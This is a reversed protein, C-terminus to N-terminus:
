RWRLVCGGSPSFLPLLLECAEMRVNLERVTEEAQWYDHCRPTVATNTPSGVRTNFGTQCPSRDCHSVRDAAAGKFDPAEHVPVKLPVSISIDPISITPYTVLASTATLIPTPIGGSPGDCQSMSSQSAMETTRTGMYVPNPPTNAPTNLPTAPYSVPLRSRPRIPRLNNVATRHNNNVPTTFTVPTTVLGPRPTDPPSSAPSNAASVMASQVPSRDQLQLQHSFEIPLPPKAIHPM